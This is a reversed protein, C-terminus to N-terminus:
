RGGVPSWSQPSTQKSVYSGMVMVSNAVSCTVRLQHGNPVPIGDDFLVSQLATLTKANWTFSNTGLYYSVTGAVDYVEVTLNNVASGAYENCRLWVVNYQGQGTGSQGLTIITPTTVTIKQKFFNPSGGIFQFPSTM